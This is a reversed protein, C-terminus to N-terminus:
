DVGFVVFPAWLFPHIHAYTGGGARQSHGKMFALKAQRLAEAIKMGTHINKYFNVMLPYTSEEVSWLSAMVNRSGASFFAQVFSILGEGAQLKGLASECASLSVLEAQLPTTYIEHLYLFGDETSNGPYLLLASFNPNAKDVYGHTAFHLYRYQGAMQKYAPESAEKGTLGMVGSEGFIQRIGEIERSAGPLPTFSLSRLGEPPTMAALVTDPSPKKAASLPNGIALLLKPARHLPLSNLVPLVSCAPLYSVTATEIWFHYRRMKEFAASGGPSAAEREAVVLMEFPLYHLVGDPIITFRDTNDIQELLPALLQQYIGHSLAGDYPLRLFDIQGSKYARFPELLRNVSANLERPSIPLKELTATERTIAFGYVSQESIYYSLMAQHPEIERQIKTLSVRPTVGLLSSLEPHASAFQVSQRQFDQRLEALQKQWKTVLEERREPLPKLLEARILRNRAAIQSEINQLEASRTFRPFINEMGAHLHALLARSRTQESLTFLKKLAEETPEQHYQEYLIDFYHQYAKIKDTLFGNSLEPSITYRRLSEITTIALRAYEGAKDLEGNQKHYRSIYFYAQWAIEPQAVTECAKLAKHFLVAASDTATLANQALGALLHARASYAAPAQIDAFIAEAQTINQLATEPKKQRISFQAADLYYLALDLPNGLAQYGSLARAFYAEASDSEGRALFHLGFQSDLWPFLHVKGELRDIVIGLAQRYYYEAQTFENLADYVEGVHRYASIAEKNEGVQLALRAAELYQRIAQRFNGRDLNIGGLHILDIAQATPDNM